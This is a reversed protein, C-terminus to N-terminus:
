LRKLSFNHILELHFFETTFTIQFNSFAGIQFYFVMLFNLQM